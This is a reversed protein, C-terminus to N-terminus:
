RDFIFNITGVCRFVTHEAPLQM